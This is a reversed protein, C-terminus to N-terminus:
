PSSAHRAHMARRRRGGKRHLAMGATGDGPPPHQRRPHPPMHRQDPRAFANLSAVGEAQTANTSSRMTQMNQRWGREMTMAVELLNRLRARQRAKCGHGDRARIFFSLAM